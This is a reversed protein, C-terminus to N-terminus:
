VNPTRWVLMHRFEIPYQVFISNKTVAVVASRSQSIAVGIICIVAGIVLSPTM